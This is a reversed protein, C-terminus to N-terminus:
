EANAYALLNAAILSAARSEAWEWSNYHMRAKAEYTFFLTLAESKTM